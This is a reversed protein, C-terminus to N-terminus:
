DAVAEITPIPRPRPFVVPREYECFRCVVLFGAEDQDATLAWPQHCEPCM